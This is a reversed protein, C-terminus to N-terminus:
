AARPFTRAHARTPAVAGPAAPPAPAAGRCGTGAGPGRGRQRGRGSARPAARRDRRRDPALPVPRLHRTLSEAADRPHLVRQPLVCPERVSQPQESVPGVPVPGGAEEPAFATSTAASLGAPLFARHRDSAGGPVGRPLFPCEPPGYPTGVWVGLSGPAATQLLVGCELGGVPLEAPRLASSGWLAKKGGTERVRPVALRSRAM